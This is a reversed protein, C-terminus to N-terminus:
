ERINAFYISRCFKPTKDNETVRIDLSFIGSVLFAAM